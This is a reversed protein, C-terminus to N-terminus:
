VARAIEFGWVKRVGSQKLAKCCEKMTNGSTWVDDVLVVNEFESSASSCSIRKGSEPDLSTEPRRELLSATKKGAIMGIAKAVLESQNFGRRREKKREMPVYSLVTTESFLFSLFSSFRQQDQAMTEFSRVAVEQLAHYAGKEKVAEILNKMIGQFEWM